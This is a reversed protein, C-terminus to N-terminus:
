EDNDDDEVYCGTWKRVLNHLTTYIEYRDHNFLPTADYFTYDAESFRDYFDTNFLEAVERLIDLQRNTLKNGFDVVVVDNSSSDPDRYIRHVVVDDLKFGDIVERLAMDVQKFVDRDDILRELELSVDSYFLVCSRTIRVANVIAQRIESQYKNVIDLSTTAKQM